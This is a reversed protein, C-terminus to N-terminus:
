FLQIVLVDALVPAIGARAPADPRQGFVVCGIATIPVIERGPWVAYAVGVPLGDRARGLRCRYARDIWPHREAEYELEFLHIHNAASQRNPHDADFRLPAEAIAQLTRAFDPACTGTEALLAALDDSGTDAM